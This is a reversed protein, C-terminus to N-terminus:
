DAGYLLYTLDRNTLAPGRKLEATHSFEHQQQQEITKCVLADLIM